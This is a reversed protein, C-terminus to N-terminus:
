FCIVDIIDTCFRMIRNFIEFNALIIMPSFVTIMQWQKTTKFNYVIITLGLKFFSRLEDNILGRYVQRM